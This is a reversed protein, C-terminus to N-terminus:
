GNYRNMSYTIIWLSSILFFVCFSFLFEVEFENCKNKKNSTMYEEKVLIRKNNGMLFLFSFSFFAQSAVSNTQISNLSPKLHSNPLNPSAMSGRTSHHLVGLCGFGLSVGVLPSSFNSDVGISYLFITVM